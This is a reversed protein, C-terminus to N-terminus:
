SLCLHFAFTFLPLYFSSLRIIVSTPRLRIFSSNFSSSSTYFAHHLLLSPSIFPLALSHTSFPPLFSTHFPPFTPPLFSPFFSLLCPPLFSSSPSPSISLYYFSLSLSVSLSFPLCVSLSKIKFLQSLGCIRYVLYCIINRIYKLKLFSLFFSFLICSRTVRNM